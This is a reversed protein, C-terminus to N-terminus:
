WWGGISFYILNTLFLFAILFTVTIIIWNNKIEQVVTINNVISRSVISIFYVFGLILLLDIPWHLWGGVIINDYKPSYYYGSMNWFILLENM